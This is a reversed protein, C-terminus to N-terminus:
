ISITKGTTLEQPLLRKWVNPNSITRRPNGSFSYYKAGATVVCIPLVQSFMTDRLPNLRGDVLWCFGANREALLEAMTNRPTMRATHGIGANERTPLVDPQTRREMVRDSVRVPRVPEAPEAEEEAPPAAVGARDDDAAAAVPDHFSDVEVMDAPDYDPLEADEGGGGGSTSVTHTGDSAMAAAPRAGVLARFSPHDTTPLKIERVCLPLKHQRHGYQSFNLLLLGTDACRALELM